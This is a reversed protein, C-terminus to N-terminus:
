QKQAIPDILKDFINITIPIEGPTLLPTGGLAREFLSNIQALQPEEFVSLAMVAQGKRANQKIEANVSRFSENNSGWGYFEISWQLNLIDHLAYFITATALFTKATRLSNVGLAYATIKPHEKNLVVFSNYLNGTQETNEPTAKAKVIIPLKAVTNQLTLIALAKKEIRKAALTGLLIVCSVLLKLKFSHRLTCGFGIAMFYFGFKATKAVVQAGLWVCTPGGNKQKSGFEHAFARIYSSVPQTSM